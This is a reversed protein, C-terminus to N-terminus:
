RDTRECIERLKKPGAGYMRGWNCAKTCRRCMPGFSYIDLPNNRFGKMLRPGGCMPCRGHLRRWVQTFWWREEPFWLWCSAYGIPPCTILAVPHQILLAAISGLLGCTLLHGILRM